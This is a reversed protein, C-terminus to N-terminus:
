FFSDLGVQDYILIYNGRENFRSFIPIIKQFTESEKTLPLTWSEDILLLSPLIADM